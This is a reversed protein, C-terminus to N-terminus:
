LSETMTAPEYRRKRTLCSDHEPDGPGLSKRSRALGRLAHRAKNQRGPPAADTVLRVVREMEDDSMLANEARELLTGPKLHGSALLSRVYKLDKDRGALLKAVALDHPEACLGTVGNTAPTSVPILREKWGKPFRCLPL